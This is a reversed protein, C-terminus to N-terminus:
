EGDKGKAPRQILQDIFDYLKDKIVSIVILAVQEKLTRLISFDSAAPEPTHYSAPLFSASVNELKEQVAKKLKKGKKNDLVEDVVKVGIYGVLLLGAVVLVIQTKDTFEKKTEQVDDMIAKKFEEKEKILMNRQELYQDKMKTPLLFNM